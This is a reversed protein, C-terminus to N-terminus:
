GSALRNGKAQNETPTLYQLNWPVHLGSVLKGRLPVIHDVSYGEPCKLYIDLLASQDAWSPCQTREAARRMAGYAKVRGTNAKRWAKKDQLRKDRVKPYWLAHVAKVHDKKIIRSDAQRQRKLAKQPEPLGAASTCTVCKGNSTYREAIHGGRCPVGTFFVKLGDVRAEDWTVPALTGLSYPTLGHHIEAKRLFANVRLRIRSTVGALPLAVADSAM